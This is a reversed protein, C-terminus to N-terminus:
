RDQKPQFNSIMELWRVDEPGLSAKAWLKNDKLVDSYTNSIATCTLQVLRTNDDEAFHTQQFDFELLPDHESESTRLATELERLIPNILYETESGKFENLVKKEAQKIEEKIQVENLKEGASRLGFKSLSGGLGPILAKAAIGAGALPNLFAVLGGILLMGNTIKGDVKDIENAIGILRDGFTEGSPRTVDQYQEQIQKLLVDEVLAEGHENPFHFIRKKPLNNIPPVDDPLVRMSYFTYGIDSLRYPLLFYHKEDHKRGSYSASNENSALFPLHGIRNNVLDLGDSVLGSVKEASRATLNKIDDFIKKM